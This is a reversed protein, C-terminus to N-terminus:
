SIEFNRDNRYSNAYSPTNIRQHTSSGGFCKYIPYMVIKMLFVAFTIFLRCISNRNVVLYQVLPSCCIQKLFIKM